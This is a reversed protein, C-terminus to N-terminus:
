EEEENPLHTRVVLCGWLWPPVREGEYTEGLVCFMSGKVMLPTGKFMGAEALDIKKM